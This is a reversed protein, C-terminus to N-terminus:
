NIKFKMIKQNETKHKGGAFWYLPMGDGNTISVSKGKSLQVTKILQHNHM